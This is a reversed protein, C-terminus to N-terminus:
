PLTLNTWQQTNITRMIASAAAHGGGNHSMYTHKSPLHVKTLCFAQTHPLPRTSTDSTLISVRVPLPPATPQETTESTREHDTPAQHVSPRAPRNTYFVGSDETEKRSGGSTPNINKVLTESQSFPLVVSFYLFTLPDKPSQSKNFSVFPSGRLTQSTGQVNNSCVSDSIYKSLPHLILYLHIDSIM